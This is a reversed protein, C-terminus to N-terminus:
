QKVICIKSNRLAAIWHLVVKWVSILYYLDQIAIELFDALFFAMPYIFPLVSEIVKTALQITHQIEM